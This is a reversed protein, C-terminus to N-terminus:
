FANRNVIGVFPTAALIRVDLWLSWTEIYRLDQELRRRMTEADPTPGRLGNIQALGTIGPKVKHRGAYRELLREYHSDLNVPHPRPGVLSMEGKLVNVLQPLEDISTRRLWAGARTVRPDGRQAQSVEDGNETVGMTRFKWVDFVQRNFGHRRQRFIVPGPGELRIAIAVLAMLPAAVVLLVLAGIRDFAAKLVRGSRSIPPGQVAFSRLGDPDFAGLAMAPSQSVIHLRVEVPLISLAEVVAEIDQASGPDLVIAVTDIRETRARLLLADLDNREGSSAAAAAPGFLGVVGVGTRAARLRGAVREAQERPGYVAVTRLVCGQALMENVVRAALARALLVTPVAGGFWGLLWVRSYDNAVNLAFGLLVLAGFAVAMGLLVDGVSASFQALRSFRYLGRARLSLFLALLGLALPAAYALRYDPIDLAFAVYTELLALGVVLVLALELLLYADEIGSRDLRGVLAAVRAFAGRSSRPAATDETDDFAATVVPDRPRDM